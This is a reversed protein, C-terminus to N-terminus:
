FRGIVGAPTLQCGTLRREAHGMRWSLLAQAEALVVSAAAPDDAISRLM